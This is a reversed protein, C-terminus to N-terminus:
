AATEMDGIDAEDDALRDHAPLAGGANCALLSAFGRVDAFSVGTFYEKGFAAVGDKKCYAILERETETCGHHRASAWSRRVGGGHILAHHVHSALRAKPATSKGVKVVGSTFEVVYIHGADHREGVAADRATAEAIRQEQEVYWTTDFGQSTKM